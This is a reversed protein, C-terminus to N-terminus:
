TGLHKHKVLSSLVDCIIRTGMLATQSNHDYPPSVEVVELGALGKKALGRVLKLVERPLFGGPEPWGTGMSVGSDMCDVDVTLYVAQVGDAWAKELAIEIIRDIGLDDVDDMTLVTHGQKKATIAGQIDNQWGGIGIHVMNKPDVNPLQSAHFLPTDHMREDMEKEQLDLHRDLQIIGVKGETAEALGRITGYAISHDGGLIVPFTQHSVVHNIAKSLQDFQKELHHVSYIDGLDAMKLQEKLDVGSEFHYSNYLKSISRMAEPGFRTGPRFTTGADFPAGIFAVDYEGVTSVDEVYPSRLFTALGAYSPQDGRVFTPISQDTIRDSGTLGLTLAKEQQRDKEKSSVTMALELAQQGHTKM